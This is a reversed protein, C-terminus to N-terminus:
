DNHYAHMAMALQHLNNMSQQKDKQAREKQQEQQRIWENQQREVNEMMKTTTNTWATLWTGYIAWWVLPLLVAVLNVATGIITMVMAGVNKQKALFCVGLGIIGLLLGIGGAPWAVIWGCCPVFAFVLALLGLAIAGIGLGISIGNTSGSDGDSSEVDRR